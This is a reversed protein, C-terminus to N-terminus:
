AVLEADIGLRHAASVLLQDTSILCLNRCQLERLTSM